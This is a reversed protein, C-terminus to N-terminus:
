REEQYVQEVFRNLKERHTADIRLFAISTRYISNHRKVRIIRALTRLVETTEPLIINTEIITSVSAYQESEFLVGGGGVDCTVAPTLGEPSSSLLLEFCVKIPLRIEIRPDKRREIGLYDLPTGIQYIGRRDDRVFETDVLWSNCINCIILPDNLGELNVEKNCLPCIRM